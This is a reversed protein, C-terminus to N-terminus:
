HTIPKTSVVFNDFYVYQDKPSPWSGGFFTNVLLANIALANTKRFLLRKGTNLGRQGDLWGQIYGNAVGPTNMVYRIEVRHWKGPTFKKSWKFTHGWEKPKKVHYVYSSMGGNKKFMMRGSWGNYGDPTRGGGVIYNIDKGGYLGPLKGGLDFDFGPSFM